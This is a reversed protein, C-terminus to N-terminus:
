GHLRRRLKNWQITLTGKVLQLAYWRTQSPLLRHFRRARTTARRFTHWKGAWYGRPRPTIREDYKGFNGSELIDSLLLEEDATQQAHSLHLRPFAPFEGPDMKLLFRIVQEFAAAMRQMGLSGFARTLWARDSASHHTHLLIAYDCVHRLGIGSSLLHHVAHLFAYCVAFPAPFTPIVVGEFALSHDSGHPYVGAIM